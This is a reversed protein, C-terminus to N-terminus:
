CRAPLPTARRGTPAPNPQPIAAARRPRCRTPSRERGWPHGAKGNAGGRGGLAPPLGPRPPPAAQPGGKSIGPGGQTRRELWRAKPTGPPRAPHRPEGFLAPPPQAPHPTQVHLGARQRGLGAPSVRSAPEAALLTGSCPPTPSGRHPSPVGLEADPARPAPNGRVPLSLSGSGSRHVVPLGAARALIGCDVDRPPGQRPSAGGVGGGWFAVPHRPECQRLAPPCRRQQAPRHLSTRDPDPAATAARHLALVECRQSTILQCSCHTLAAALIVAAPIEM